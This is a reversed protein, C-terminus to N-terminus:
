TALLILLNYTCQLLTFLMLVVFFFVYILNFFWNCVLLAVVAVTSLPLAM